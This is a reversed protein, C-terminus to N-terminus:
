FKLIFDDPVVAPKAEAYKAPTTSTKKSYALAQFPVSIASKHANCFARGKRAMTDGPMGDAFHLAMNSINNLCPKYLFAFDILESVEIPFNNSLHRVSLFVLTNTFRLSTLCTIVEPNDWDFLTAAAHLILFNPHADKKLLSRCYQIFKEATFEEEKDVSHQPLWNFKNKDLKTFVKGFKFHHTQHVQYLFSKIMTVKGSGQAGVLMGMNMGEPLKAPIIVPEPKLPKALEAVAYLETIADQMEDVVAELKALRALISTQIQDPLKSM